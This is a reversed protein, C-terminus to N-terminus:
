QKSGGLRVPKLEHVEPKDSGEVIEVYRDLPIDKFVQTKGTTPWFVDLLEVKTAHGLGIHQRLPSAGFSAGSGVWRYVSRKAGDEIIDARIRAGMASRNSKKGELRVALWHSGFGPNEFLANHFKDSRFAGGMQCFVDLDGDFDFDAFAVGHGKQLHGLGSPLTVDAYGKGRLNHYAKNPVLDRAEPRGTGAVFDLFGDNDFDGFNSGMASFPETLGSAKGIEQFGGKGDGRYLCPLEADFSFGLAAAALDAPSAGFANVQIDLVGDNDFDFFWCPFSKIPKTVGLKPAVDEFTGDGKNHYLRNEQGLNSVYLDPRGDGDYDGAAVGRVFRDNTVGAGKAVDTFTGDGENRFLQSPAELDVNAENGVYIDLDGDADYDFFVGKENPYNVEALGSEFTRDTFTGDGNNHLLSDPHRGKQGLWAGRIVYADVFGDNDYDGQIANLGGLLGLLGAEKTRRTFTGDGENRFYELQGDSGYGTLMLDIDDDNDFDDAIVGGALNSIDLGLKPAVNEFRPFSEKGAFFAPPIRHQEPVMDPYGGLTMASVNYMWQAKLHVATRPGTSDLVEKLIAMASQSGEKKTHVAAGRLPLICSESNHSACCNETEALRLWAAAFRVKSDNYIGERIGTPKLDFAQQYMALGEREDGYYVMADGLDIMTQFRESAPTEPRMADLKKRLDRIKVDGLLWNEDNTKDLIDKLAALMKQQGTLAGKDQSPSSAAAPSAQASDQCPAPASTSTWVLPALLVSAFRTNM